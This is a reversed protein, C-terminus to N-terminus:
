KTKREEINAWMGLQTLTHTKDIGGNIKLAGAVDTNYNKKKACRQFLFCSFLFVKKIHEAAMPFTVTKTEVINM